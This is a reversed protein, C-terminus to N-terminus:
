QQPPAMYANTGPQTLQRQIWPNTGPLHYGTHQQLAPNIMGGFHPYLGAGIGAAGAGMMYPNGMLAGAGGLAGAGLMGYRQWLALQSPDMGMAEYIPDTYSNIHGHLRNLQKKITETVHQDIIRQLGKRSPRGNEDMLDGLDSEDLLERIRPQLQRKAADAVASLAPQLAPKVKETNVRYKTTQNTAELPGRQESPAADWEAKTGYRGTGDQSYIVYRAANVPEVAGPAYENGLDAATSKFLKKLANPLYSRLYEGTETRYVKDEKGSMYDWWNDLTATGPILAGATALGLATPAGSQKGSDFVPNNKAGQMLGAGFGINRLYNTWYAGRPIPQKNDDLREGILGNDSAFDLAGGINQGLAGGQLSKVAGEATTQGKVFGPKTANLGRTIEIPDNLRGGVRHTDQKATAATERANPTLYSAAGLVPAMIRGVYNPDNEDNYARQGAIGGAVTSATGVVARGFSPPKVHTGLNKVGDWLGQGYNAIQQTFPFSTGAAPAGTGGAIKEIGRILMTQTSVDFDKGVKIVANAIQDLNMNKDICTDVFADALLADNAKKHKFRDLSAWADAGTAHDEKRQAYSLGNQEGMGSRAPKSNDQKSKKYLAAFKSFASISDSSIKGRTMLDNKLEATPSRDQTMRAREGDAVLSALVNQQATDTTTRERVPQQRPNMPIPSPAPAPPPTPGPPAPPVVTPTGPTPPLGAPGPVPAGGQASKLMFLLAATKTPQTMTQVGTTTAPVTKPPTVKAASNPNQKGATAAAALNQGLGMGPMSSVPRGSNGFVSPATNNFSSANNFM